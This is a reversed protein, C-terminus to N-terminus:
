GGEGQSPQGHPASRLQPRRRCLNDARPTLSRRRLIGRAPQVARLTDSRQGTANKRGQARKTRSPEFWGIFYLYEEVVSKPKRRGLEHLILAVPSPAKVGLIPILLQAADSFVQSDAVPVTVVLSLVNPQSMTLTPQATLM